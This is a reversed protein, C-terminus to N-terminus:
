KREKARNIRVIKPDITLPCYIEIRDGAHIRTEGSIIKGYIGIKHRALDIDLHQAVNFTTLIQNLTMGENIAYTLIAPVPAKAYIIELQM